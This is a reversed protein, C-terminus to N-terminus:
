KLGNRHKPTVTCYSTQVGSEESKAEFDFAVCNNIFKSLSCVWNSLLKQKNNYCQVNESIM